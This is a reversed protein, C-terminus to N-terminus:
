STNDTQRKTGYSKKDRPIKQRTSHKTWQVNQRLVTKDDSMKDAPRKTRLHKTQAGKVGGGWGVEGLQGRSGAGQIYKHIQIKIFYSTIGYFTLVNGYKADKRWMISVAAATPTFIATYGTYIYLGLPSHTRQHRGQLGPPWHCLLVPRGRTGSDSYHQVRPGPLTAGVGPPPLRCVYAFVIFVFFETCNM